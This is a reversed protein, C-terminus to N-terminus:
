NMLQKFIPYVCSQTYDFNMHVRCEFKRKVKSSPRILASALSNVFIQILQQISDQITWKSLKPSTKKIASEYTFTLKRKKLKVFNKNTYKGKNEQHM